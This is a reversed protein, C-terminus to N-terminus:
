AGCGVKVHTQTEDLQGLGTEPGWGSPAAVALGLVVLAVSSENM